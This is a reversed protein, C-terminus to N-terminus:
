LFQSYNQTPDFGLKQFYAISKQLHEESLRKYYGEQKIFRYLTKNPLGILDDNIHSINFVKGHYKLFSLLNEEYKQM